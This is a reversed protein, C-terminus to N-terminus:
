LTYDRKTETPTEKTGKQARKHHGEKLGFKDNRETVILVVGETAIPYIVISRAMISNSNRSRGVVKGKRVHGFSSSSSM